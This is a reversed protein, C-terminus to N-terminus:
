QTPRNIEYCIANEAYEIKGLRAIKKCQCEDADHWFRLLEYHEWRIAACAALVHDTEGQTKAAVCICDSRLLRDCIADIAAKNCVVDSDLLLLIDSPKPKLLRAQKQLQHRNYNIDVERHGCSVDASHQSILWSAGVSAVGSVVSPHFTTGPLMPTLILSIVGRNGM